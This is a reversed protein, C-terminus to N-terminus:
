ILGQMCNTMLLYSNQAGARHQTVDVAVFTAQASYRQSVAWHAFSPEIKSIEAILSANAGIAPAVNMLEAFLAPIHGTNGGFRAAPSYKRAIAKLSCEASVGFLHSANALRQPAQAFLLEADDLHRKSADFFDDM